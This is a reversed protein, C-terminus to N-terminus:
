GLKETLSTSDNLSLCTVAELELVSRVEKMRFAGRFPSASGICM